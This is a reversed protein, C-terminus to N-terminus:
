SAAAATDPSAGAVVKAAHSKIRAAANKHIVGSKSARDATSALTNYAKAITEGSGSELAEAFRKRATKVRSKVARNRITRTETQRARKSASLSNAM